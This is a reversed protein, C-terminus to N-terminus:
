DDGNEPCRLMVKAVDGHKLVVVANDSVPLLMVPGTQEVLLYPLQAEGSGYVRALRPIDAVRLFSNGGAWVLWHVVGEVDHGTIVQEVMLRYGEPDEATVRTYFWECRELVGEALTELGDYEGVQWRGPLMERIAKGNGRMDGSTGARGAPGLMRELAGLTEPALVQEAAGPTEAGAHPVNLCWLALSMLIPRIM